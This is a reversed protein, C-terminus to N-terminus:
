YLQGKEVTFGGVKCTNTITCNSFTGNTFTGSTATITGTINADTAGM